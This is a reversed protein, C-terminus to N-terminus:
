SKIYLSDFYTNILASAPKAASKTIAKKDKKELSNYAEGYDKLFDEFADKNLMGLLRGFDKKEVEGIKSIVNNLRNETIYAQLAAQLKVTKESLPESAKVKKLAMLKESWKENKNKLIVRVGNNFRATKIPKIIVGECVNPSIEPLGLLAPITSDFANPYSLCAKIDGEFLTKAYLLQYKEFLLNADNVDLYKNEQVLIDFCYFENDPAYFVGKQVKLADKAKAVEPHPYSGGIAEGYITM